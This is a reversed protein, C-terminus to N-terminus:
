YTQSWRHSFVTDCGLVNCVLFGLHKNEWGMYLYVEISQKRYYYKRASNGYRPADISSFGGFM